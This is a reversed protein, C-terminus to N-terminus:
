KAPVVTIGAQAPCGSGRIHAAVLRLNSDPACGGRVAHGSMGVLLGLVALVTVIQSFILVRMQIAGAPRGLSPGRHTRERCRLAHRASLIYRVRSLRCRWGRRGFPLQETPPRPEHWTLRTFMAFMSALRPECLRLSDEIRDLIRQQGAPLAMVCEWGTKEVAATGKVGHAVRRRRRLRGAAASM